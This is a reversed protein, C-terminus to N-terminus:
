DTPCIYKKVLIGTVVEVKTSECFKVSSKMAKLTTILNDIDATNCDIIGDLGIVSGDVVKSKVNAAEDSNMTLLFCKSRRHVYKLAIAELDAQKYRERLSTKLSLSVPVAKSYLITDFYINPVFAVTAQTYFPIIGERYLLTYIIYEFVGGELTPKAAAKLATWYKSVYEAPTAYTITLFTEGPLLSEFLQTTRTDKQTFGLNKLLGM